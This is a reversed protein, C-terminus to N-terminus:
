TAIPNRPSRTAVPRPPWSRWYWWSWVMVGSRAHWVDELPSLGKRQAIWSHLRAACIESRDHARLSPTDRTDSPAAAHRLTYCAHQPLRATAPTGYRATPLAVLAMRRPRLPEGEGRTCRGTRIPVCGM